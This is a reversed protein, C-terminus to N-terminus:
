LFIVVTKIDTYATLYIHLTCYPTVDETLISLETIRIYIYIYIYRRSLINNIDRDILVFIYCFLMLIENVCNTYYICFHKYWVEWM